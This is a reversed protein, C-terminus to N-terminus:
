NKLLSLGVRNCYMAAIANIGKVANGVRIEAIQWAKQRPINRWPTALNPNAEINCVAASTPDIGQKSM